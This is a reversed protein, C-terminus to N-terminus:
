RFSVLSLFGNFRCFLLFVILHVFLIRSCKSRNSCQQYQQNLCNFNFLTPCFMGTFTWSWEWSNSQLHSISNFCTLGWVWVPNTQFSYMWNLLPSHSLSFTLWHWTMFISPILLELDGMLQHIRNWKMEFINAWRNGLSQGLFFIFSECAFKVM